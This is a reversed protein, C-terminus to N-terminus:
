RACGDSFLETFLRTARMGQPSDHLSPSMQEILWDIRARRDPLAALTREFERQEDPLLEESDNAAGRQPGSAGTDASDRLLARATNGTTRRFPTTRCRPLYEGAIWDHILQQEDAAFVGQMLPQEGQILQWFRSEVPDRHRKIWGHRELARLFELAGDRQSLWDNVSRGGIRCRDAHMLRGIVAKRELMACLETQLDFAGIISSTSEGLCNLRYGNRVRRYFQDPDAAAATLELVSQLAHRAHGSDFNDITVHLSFYYPDIDLEALECATILLHLPLQEYGLNFGIIEPLFHVPQRALALQVAGQLYYRDALQDWGGGCDCNALLKRYLAVHNQQALGGGLEELYTRILGNFRLDRWRGLLGYLWSGDVLKTPAVTKLFHLAHARSQFYRRPAGAHRQDLYSRYRQGVEVINREAWDHLEAPSAPIDTSIHRAADLQDELFTRALPQAVGDDDRLLRFYVSRNSGSDDPLPSPTPMPLPIAASKANM